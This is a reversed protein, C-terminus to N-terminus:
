PYLIGSESTRVPMYWDSTEQVAMYGSTYTCAQVLVYWRTGGQVLHVPNWIRPGALPRRSGTRALRELTRLSMSNAAAARARSETVPVPLRLLHRRRSLVTVTVAEPRGSHPTLPAPGPGTQSPNVGSVSLRWFSFLVVLQLAAPTRSSFAAPEVLMFTM